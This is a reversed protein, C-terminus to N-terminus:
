GYWWSPCLMGCGYVQYGTCMDTRATAKQKSLLPCWSPVAATEVYRLIELSRSCACIKNTRTLRLCRKVVMMCVYM